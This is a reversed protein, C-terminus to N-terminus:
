KCKRKKEIEEIAKEFMTDIFTLCNIMDDYTNFKYDKGLMNLCYNNGGKNEFKVKFTRGKLRLNLRELQKNIVELKEKTKM